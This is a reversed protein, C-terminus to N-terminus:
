RVHVVPAEFPSHRVVLELSYAALEGAEALLRQRRGHRRPEVRAKRGLEGGRRERRPACAPPSDAQSGSRERSHCRHGGHDHESQARAAAASV